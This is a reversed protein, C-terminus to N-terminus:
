QAEVANAVDIHDEAVKALMKCATITLRLLVERDVVSLLPKGDIAEADSFAILSLLTSVGGGIDLSYDALTKQHSPPTDARHWSFSRFIPSSDPVHSCKDSM